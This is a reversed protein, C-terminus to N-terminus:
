MEAVIERGREHWEQRNQITYNLYERRFVGFVVREQLKKALPIICFDFFGLEAPYCYDIPNRDGRGGSFFAKHMEFCLRANWQRFIHWHQMTHAMVSAQILHERVVTAKRDMM